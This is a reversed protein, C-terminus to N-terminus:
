YIDERRRLLILQLLSILTIIIILLVSLAAGIGFKGSQFAFFYIRQTLLRTSYGPLGGSVLWPLEYMKFAAITTTLVNITISPAMMPITVHKRQNLRNAGDISAAEYLESPISQLGALFVVVCLGIQSWTAAIIVALNTLGYTQLWNVPSGGLSRILFNIVGNNYNYMIRWVIGVVSGSLICPFFWLSRVLSRNVRGRGQNDLALAVIFSIAIVLITTGIAFFLSAKAMDWFGETSPLQAFNDFGVFRRSQSIGNWDQFSLIFVDVLPILVFVLCLIASPIIFLIGTKLRSKEFKSQFGKAQM